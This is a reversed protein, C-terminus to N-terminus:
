QRTTEPALWAPDRASTGVLVARAGERLWGTDLLRHLAAWTAAACLELLVGHRAALEVQAAEAAADPVAIATGGTDRVARLAQDTTTAGATSLQRTTGAFSDTVRAEGALVASLRAFPEVAVLRPGQHPWLGAEHLAAFGLALGSILDGRATPVLVADWGEPPAEAALEFALTRYGEVGWASSGSAPLAYNTAAYWGEERVMRALLAWRAPSDPAEVLQAGHALLARRVAQPVSATVVVRCPLGARAAYAALSLGANGSSACAIGPAGTEVARAVVLPSMRDKHSGTPNMWEAKVMCASLPAPPPLSILPTGGEGLGAWALYPLWPGAAAMRAGAPPLRRPGPAYLAALSTPTGAARARPCGEPWDGVALVPGGDLPRFGILEPNRLPLLSAAAAAVPM